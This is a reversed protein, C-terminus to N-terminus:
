DTVCSRIQRKGCLAAEVTLGVGAPNVDGRHCHPRRTSGCDRPAQTPFVSVNKKLDCGKLKIISLALLVNMVHSLSCYVTVSFSMISNVKSPGLPGM